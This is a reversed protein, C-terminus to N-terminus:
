LETVPPSDLRMSQTDFSDLMLGLVLPAKKLEIMFSQGDFSNIKVDLFLHFSLKLQTIRFLHHNDLIKVFRPTCSCKPSLNSDDVLM